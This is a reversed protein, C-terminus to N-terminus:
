SPTIVHFAIDGTYNTDSVHIEWRLQSSDWVFWVAVNDSDSTPNNSPDYKPSACAVIRDGSHPTYGTVDGNSITYNSSSDYTDIFGTFLAM